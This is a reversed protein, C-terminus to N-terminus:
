ERGTRAETGDSDRGLLSLAGGDREDIDLLRGASVRVRSRDRPLAHAYHDLTVRYSSHGLLESIVPLPEGRSLMETAFYHRLAMPGFPEVGAAKVAAAWPGHFSSDGMPQGSATYLFTGEAGLGHDRGHRALRDRLEDPIEVRRPRRGKPIAFRTPGDIIQRDILLEPVLSRVRRGHVERDDPLGFARDRTLGRIEGPRMGAFAGLDVFVRLRADLAERVALVEDVTPVHGLSKPITPANLHDLPNTTLWRRAVAYSLVANLEAMIVNVSAPSLVETRGNLWRGLREPTLTADSVIVSGLEAEVHNRYDAAYKIPTREAWGSRKVDCYATWAEGLTRKEGTLQNLIASTAAGVEEGEALAKFARAEALNDFAKSRESGGSPTWRVVWTTRKKPGDTRVRKQLGAM